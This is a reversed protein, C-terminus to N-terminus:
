FCCVCVCFFFSIRINLLLFFFLLSGSIGTSRRLQIHTTHLAELFISPERVLPIISGCIRRTPAGIQGILWPLFFSFHAFFFFLSFSMSRSPLTFLFYNTFTFLLVLCCTKKKREQHTVSLIGVSGVRQNQRTALTNSRVVSRTCEMPLVETSRMCLLGIRPPLYGVVGSTFFVNQFRGLPVLQAFFFCASCM